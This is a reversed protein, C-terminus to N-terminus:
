SLCGMSDCESLASSLSMRVKVRDGYVAVVIEGAPVTKVVTRDGQFREAGYEPPIYEDGAHYVIYTAEHPDCIAFKRRLVEELNPKGGASWPVSYAAQEPSYAIQEPTTM